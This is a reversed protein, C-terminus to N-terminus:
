WQVEVFECYIPNIPPTHWCTAIKVLFHNIIYLKKRFWGCHAHHSYLMIIRSSHNGL